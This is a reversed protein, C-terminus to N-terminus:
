LESLLIPFCRQFLQCTWHGSVFRHKLFRVGKTETDDQKKARFTNMGVRLVGPMQNWCLNAMRLMAPTAPFWGGDDPDEVYGFHCWSMMVHFGSGTSENWRLFIPSCFVHQCSTVEIALRNCCASERVFSTISQSAVGMPISPHCRDQKIDKEM